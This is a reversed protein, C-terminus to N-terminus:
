NCWNDLLKLGRAEVPGIKVLNEPNTVQYAYPHPHDIQYENQM